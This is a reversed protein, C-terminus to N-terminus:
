ISPCNRSHIKCGCCTRVACVDEPWISYCNEMSHSHWVEQGFQESGSLRGFRNTSTDMVLFALHLKNSGWQILWICQSNAFFDRAKLLAMVSGPHPVFYFKKQTSVSFKDQSQLIKLFGYVNDAGSNKYGDEFSQVQWLSLLPHRYEQFCIIPCWSALIM